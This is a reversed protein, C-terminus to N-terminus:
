LKLTSPLWSVVPSKFTPPFKSTVPVTLKAPAAKVPLKVSIVSIVDSPTILVDLAVSAAFEVSVLADIM